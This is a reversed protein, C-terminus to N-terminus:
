KLKNQDEEGVEAEELITETATGGSTSTTQNNYNEYPLTMLLPFAGKDPNVAFLITARPSKRRMRRFLDTTARSRISVNILSLLNSSIYPFLPHPTSVSFYSTLLNTNKIYINCCFSLTHTAVIQLFLWLASQRIINEEQRVGIKM